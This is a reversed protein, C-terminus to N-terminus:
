RLTLLALMTVIRAGGVHAAVFVGCSYADPTVTAAGFFFEPGASQM